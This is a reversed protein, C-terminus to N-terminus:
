VGDDGVGVPGTETDGPRCELAGPSGICIVPVRVEIDAADTEELYGRGRVLGDRESRRIWEYSFHSTGRPPLPACAFGGRAWPEPDFRFGAERLRAGDEPLPGRNDPLAGRGRESSACRAIAHALGYAQRRGEGILGVQRVHGRGRIWFGAAAFLGIALTVGGVVVVFRRGSIRGSVRPDADSERM